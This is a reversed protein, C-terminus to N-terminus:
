NLLGDLALNVALVNVTEEGLIGLGKTNTYKLVIQRVQSPDLGRAKAIRDIQYDAAAVSIHPDLGSGSCTVLDIPVPKRGNQPHAAQLAATREAIVAALEEGAPTKNSPGAYFLPEGNDGVFTDIDVNMPRGWLYQDETFQQALLKSGYKHGDIEIISGEAQSSFLAQAAGTVALPYIVGCLITFVALFAAAKSIIAGLTKM